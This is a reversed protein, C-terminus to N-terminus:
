TESTGAFAVRECDDLCALIFRYTYKKASSEERTLNEGISRRFEAVM